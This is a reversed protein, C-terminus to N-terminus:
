LHNNRNNAINSSDHMAMPRPEHILDFQYIYIYIDICDASTVLMGDNTGGHHGNCSNRFIYSLLSLMHM